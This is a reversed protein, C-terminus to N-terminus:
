GSEDASPGYIPPLSVDNLRLFVGLQGRHHITHNLVMNRLVAIRPLCFITKGGALLSWDALLHEDAAAAIAERAGAANKDFTDLVAQLSPLPDFRPPPSGPPVVDFNEQNIVFLTWSLMNAMHTALGIFTMSKEHPRWNLKDAPIRELSLRTNAMIRDFEPLLSESLAM